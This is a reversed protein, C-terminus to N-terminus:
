GNKYFFDSFRKLVKKLFGDFVYTLLLCLLVAGGPGGLALITFGGVISAFFLVKVSRTRFQKFSLSTVVHDVAARLLYRHIDGGTAVFIADLVM